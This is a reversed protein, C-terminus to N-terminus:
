HHRAMRAGFQSVDVDRASSRSLGATGGSTCEGRFRQIFMGMWPPLGELALDDLVTSESVEQGGGDRSALM